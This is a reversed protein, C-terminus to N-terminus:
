LNPIGLTRFGSLPGGNLLSCSELNAPWRPKWWWFIVGRQGWAFEVASRKTQVSPFAMWTASVSLMGQFCVSLANRRSYWEVGCLVVPADGASSINWHLIWVLTGISVVVISLSVISMVILISVGNCPVGGEEFPDTHCQIVSSNNCCWLVHIPLGMMGWRSHTSHEMKLVTWVSHM